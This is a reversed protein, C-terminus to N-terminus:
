KPSRFQRNPPSSDGPSISRPELVELGTHGSVYYGTDSQGAPFNQLSTEARAAVDQRWKARENQEEQAMDLMAKINKATSYAYLATIATSAAIVGLFLLEM